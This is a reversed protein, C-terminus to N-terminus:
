VFLSSLLLQQMADGSQRYQRIPAASLNSCLIRGAAYVSALCLAREASMSSSSAAGGRNWPVSTIARREEGRTEVGALWGGM